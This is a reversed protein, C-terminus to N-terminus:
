PTVDVITVNAPNPPPNQLSDIAPEPFCDVGFLTTTDGIGVIVAQTLGDEYYIINVPNAASPSVTIQYDCTPGVPGGPGGPAGGEFIVSDITTGFPISVVSVAQTWATQYAEVQASNISDILSQSMNTGAFFITLVGNTIALTQPDGVNVLCGDGLPFLVTGTNTTEISLFKSM